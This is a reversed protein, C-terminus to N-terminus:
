SVDKKVRALQVIREDITGKTILRYVTVQRTQGLRHARDMAQSDNSPNWDHDYFIVTDAATLNIGLGGARTSLLFVFIDPSSLMNASTACCFRTPIAFKTQWEIVMDRRDELKSSGDLRLYKHKRFSMYEEMLDIMRTMQFYILVRHGGPKLKDLLSDLRALKASDSILSQPEPVITPSRPLQDLGSASLLGRPPIVPVHKLLEDYAEVSNELRPPLGFLALYEFDGAGSVRAQAEIFSRDSVHVQIPPAVVLPIRCSTILPRSLCSAQWYRNGIESLPPLDEAVDLDSSLVPFRIQWKPLLSNAAFESHSLIVTLTYSQAHLLKPRGLSPHSSASFITEMYRLCSDFYSHNISSTIHKGLPSTSYRSSLFHRQAHINNSDLLGVIHHIWKCTTSRAIYDTLWINMMSGLINSDTGFSSEGPVGCLTGEEIFMRPLSLSIPNKAIDPYFLVDKERTINSKAFACFAYPTIVEARQFLDPHNCVQECLYPYPTFKSPIHCGRVKRFQMVLNM